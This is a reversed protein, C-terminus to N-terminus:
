SLIESCFASIREPVEQGPAEKPDVLSLTAKLSDNKLVKRIQAFAKDAGGGAHTMCVSVEMGRLKDKEKTLFSLIPPSVRGAWVPSCVVAACYQGDPFDYPELEPKEGMVASKGGWFFKRFGESPYAKVPEIRILDAGLREAIQEAAYLSNGSMSYCIVATKM